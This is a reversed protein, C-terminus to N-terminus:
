CPYKKTIPKFREAITRGPNGDFGALKVMQTTRSIKNWYYSLGSTDDYCLRWANPPSSNQSNLITPTAKRPCQSSNKRENLNTSAHYDVALPITIKRM